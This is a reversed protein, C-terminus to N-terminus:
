SLPVMVTDNGTLGREKGKFLLSILLVLAFITALVNLILIFILESTWITSLELFQLVTLRMVMMLQVVMMGSTGATALILLGTRVRRELRLRTMAFAFTFPTSFVGLLALPWFVPPGDIAPFLMESFMMALVFLNLGLWPLLYLFARKFAGPRVIGWCPVAFCSVGLALIGSADSLPMGFVTTGSTDPPMGIVMFLLSTLVPLVMTALICRRLFTDGSRGFQRIGQYALLMFILLSAFMTVNVGVSGIGHILALAPYHQNRTWYDNHLGGILFFSLYFLASFLPLLFAVLITWQIRRQRRPTELPVSRHYFPDLRANIANFLLDLWTWFTVEHESLLELMEQEYRERWTRPYLRVIWKIPVMVWGQFVSQSPRPDLRGSATSFAGGEQFVVSLGGDTLDYRRQQQRSGSPELPSILGVRELRSLVMWLTAPGLWCQREELFTLLERGDMPRHHLSFLILRAPHTLRGFSSMQQQKMM